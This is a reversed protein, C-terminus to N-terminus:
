YQIKMAFEISGTSVTDARLVKVIGKKGAQTQFPIYLGPMAWKYKKKGWADNYSVILLSDSHCDAFKQQTVGNDATIDWKTYNVTTWNTLEPYHDEYLEGTLASNEGPSSFTPSPLNVGNDESFKFYTVVDINEQFMSATDVFYVKGSTPDFYHGFEESDQYGMTISPYYRIGGFSSNPDKYIRITDSASMRNHDMVSIIWDLTDDVGQFFVKNWDFDEEYIGTDLMTTIGEHSQAKISLNTISADGKEAVVGIVIRDGIAVVAGDPTYNGGSKLTLM